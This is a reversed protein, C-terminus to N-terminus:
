GGRKISQIMAKIEEDSIQGSITFSILGDNWEAKNWMDNPILYYEMGNHKFIKEDTSTEREEKAAINETSYAVVRIVLEGREATYIGVCKTMGDIQRVTVDNLSYDKPIWGPLKDADMGNATLAEKLSRYESQTDEPLEMIGSPNFCTQIVGEAWSIASQVPNFGLANATVMFCVVMTLVALALRLTRLPSLRHYKRKKESPTDEVSFILPHAERLESWQQEPDYDEEVPAREQLISLYYEIKDTDMDEVTGSRLTDEIEQLLETNSKEHALNQKNLFTGAGSKSSRPEYRM